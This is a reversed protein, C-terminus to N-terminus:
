IFTSLNKEYSTKTPPKNPILDNKNKTNIRIVMDAIYRQPKIRM